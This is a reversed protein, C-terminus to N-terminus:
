PSSEVAARRREECELLAIGDRALARKLESPVSSKLKTPTDCPLKASEPIPRPLFVTSVDPAERVPSACGTLTM